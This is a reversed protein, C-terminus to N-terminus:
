DRETAENGLRVGWAIAAITTLVQGTLLVVAGLFTAILGGTGSDAEAAESLFFGLMAAGGLMAVIGVVFFAITNSRASRMTRVAHETPM